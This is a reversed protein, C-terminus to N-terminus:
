YGTGNWFGNGDSTLNIATTVTENTLGTNWLDVSAGTHCAVCAADKDDNFYKDTSNFNLNKHAATSIELEASVNVSGGTTVVVSAGGHCGICDVSMSAAHASSNDTAKTTTSVASWGHCATCNMGKHAQGAELQGTIGDGEASDHCKGCDVSSGNVFTHAGDYLAFTSPLAFMGVAVIAIALFVIKGDM